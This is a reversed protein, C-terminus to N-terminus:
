CEFASNELLLICREHDQGTRAPGAWTSSTRMSSSGVTRALIMTQEVERRGVLM